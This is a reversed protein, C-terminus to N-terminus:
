EIKGRVLRPDFYDRLWDGILNISLVTLTLALGPFVALWWAVTIYDRSESIMIGWSPTPPQVGLGLFSLSAEVVIMRSVMFTAIVILPTIINPIVDLLIIRLHNAGLAHSAQIFDKEKVSLVEGRTIRCYTPWGAIGLAIIANRLSPGLMAALSVALLLFPFSLQIDTMIMIIDDVKGRFYGAIIGALVGISGAVGVSVLGVIMSVRAGYVIRSWVDRGLSDAGMFYRSEKSVWSPPSLRGALDPRAPDKSTFLPPFVAIAIMLLLISGAIFLMRNSVLWRSIERRIVTM